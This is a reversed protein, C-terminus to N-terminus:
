GARFIDVPKMKSTQRSVASGIACGIVVSLGVATAALQWSISVPLRVIQNAAQAQKVLAPVPNLEWPVPITISLFGLAYAICYGALIGLLGGAVTQAFAEVALQKQIDQQTWGIAKLIGIERSREVLNAMMTKMILFAAGVLAVMSAILAFKRSIMSVGGMLELFSDSSSVSAEAIQDKLQSKVQTLMSPDKLRLFVLNLAGPSQALLMQASELPMYINAAAIQAGEMIEITGTITFEHGGIQLKDGLRTKQFKAFHKELAIEDSKGPFRGAKVWDQVKVVGLSPQGTDVGMITRFGNEAFEWLLLAHAAAGLRKIRNIAELDQLDFLQNSFPLRIGRMSKIPKSTLGQQKESRQVILDAGFNKFPRRAATQYATSVASMSVFLAIGAAIGFINLLTRGSRFRLEKLVYRYNM